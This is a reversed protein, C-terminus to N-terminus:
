KEDDPLQAPPKNLYISDEPFTTFASVTSQDDVAFRSGTGSLGTRYSRSAGIESTFSLLDSPFQSATTMPSLASTASAVTADDAVKVPSVVPYQGPGKHLGRLYSKTPVDQAVRVGESTRLRPHSKHAIRKFNMSTEYGHGVGRQAVSSTRPRPGRRSRAPTFGRRQDLTPMFPRLPSRPDVLMANVRSDKQRYADDVHWLVEDSLSGVRREEFNQPPRRRAERRHLADYLNTQQPRSRAQHERPRGM